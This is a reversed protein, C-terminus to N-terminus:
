YHGGNGRKKPPSGAMNMPRGTFSSKPKTPDLKAPTKSSSQGRGPLGAVGPGSTTMKKGGVGSKTPGSYAVKASRQGVPRDVPPLGTHALPHKHARGAFDSTKVNAGPDHGPHMGRYGGPTNNDQPSQSPGPPGATVVHKAYKM